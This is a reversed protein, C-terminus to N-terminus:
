NKLDANFYVYGKYNDANDINFFDIFLGNKTPFLKHPRPTINLTHIELNQLNILFFNSKENRTEESYVYLINNNIVVHCIPNIHEKIKLITDNNHFLIFQNKDSKAYYLKNSDYDWYYSAITDNKNYTINLFNNTITGWANESIFKITDNETGIFQTNENFFEFITTDRFSTTDLIDLNNNFTILTFYKQRDDNYISNNYVCFGYLLYLKNKETYFHSYNEIHCKKGKCVKKESNKIINTINKSKYISNGKSNQKIIYYNDPNNNKQLYYIYYNCTISSIGYVFLDSNIYICYSSDNCFSITQSCPLCNLQLVKSKQNCNSQGLITSLQWGGLLFYVIIIFNKMNLFKM